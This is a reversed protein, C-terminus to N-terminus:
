YFTTILSNKEMTGKTLKWRPWRDNEVRQSAPFLSGNGYGATRESDEREMKKGALFLQWTDPLTKLANLAPPYGRWMQKRTRARRRRTKAIASEGRSGTATMRWMRTWQRERGKHARTQQIFARICYVALMRDPTSRATQTANQRHVFLLFSPSPSFTNYIGPMHGAIGVAQMHVASAQPSTKLFSEVHATSM